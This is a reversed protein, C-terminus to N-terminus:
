TFRHKRSCALAIACVRRLMTAHALQAPKASLPNLSNEPNSIQAMKNMHGTAAAGVPHLASVAVRLPYLQMCMYLQCFATM